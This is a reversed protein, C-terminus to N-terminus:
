QVVGRQKQEIDLKSNQNSYVKEEGSRLVITVTNPYISVKRIEGPNTLKNVLLM